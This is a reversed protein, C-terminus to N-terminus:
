KYIELLEIINLLYNETTLLPLTKLRKHYILAYHFECNWNKWYAKSCFIIM